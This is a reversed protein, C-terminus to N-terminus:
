EENNDISKNLEPVSSYIRDGHVGTLFKDMVSNYEKQRDDGEWHARFLKGQNAIGRELEDLTESIFVEIFETRDAGYFHVQPYYGKYYDNKHTVAENYETLLNMFKDGDSEEPFAFYSTRVYYILPLDNEELSKAGPITVYIEDSHENSYFTRQSKLFAKREAKDPWAEIELEENRKTADEIATWSPYVTIFVVESNDPTFYHLLTTASLIHENKMTVKEHYEVEVSKWDEMSFNELTMDRHLTTVSIYLQEQSFIPTTAILFFVIIGKFFHSSTKM